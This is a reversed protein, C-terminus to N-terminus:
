YAHDDNAISEPTVKGRMVHFAWSTYILIIPVFIVAFVLMWGLTGASSSADWVTLSQSPASSSPMLFPFMAAGVTGITAAWALAGAWWAVIGMGRRAVLVGGILTLYVMAPIAWLWPVARYNALWAGGERVVTKNLPLAPGAPDLGGTVVYGHMQSVWIGGISFLVLAAAGSVTALRIARARIVGTGRGMIMTAGQYLALALSMLGCLVAFPNFLTIFSGTYYSVMDWSYHFPVGELMNGMAAGFVIMPVAGSVFLMWDWANRWFTGPMKSRYEFGLPRVIMAWLLLLMVVYLGSFATAYITPWAAFIAGGGLIFWVQNGDWHPAIMNIAARREGDNRGLYRLAAGVGMDMGVMVALGILLVGLLAWWILKLGVYLEM